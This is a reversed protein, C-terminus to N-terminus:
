TKSKGFGRQYTQSFWYDQHLILQQWNIHQPEEPGDQSRFLTFKSRCLTLLSFQFKGLQFKWQQVSFCGSFVFSKFPVSILFYFNTHTTFSNSLFLLSWSSNNRACCCTAYRVIVQTCFLLLSILNPSEWNRQCAREERFSFGQIFSTYLHFDIM